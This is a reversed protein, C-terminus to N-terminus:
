FRFLQHWPLPVLLYVISAVALFTGFPLATRGDGRGAIMLGVGVLAGLIAAVILVWLCGMVGLVAGIAALYKVDGFGMGEIGRVAKYLVIVAIPIGGGVVIGLGAELPTTLGGALSGAIGLVVAPYTIVDPLIQHELDILGLAISMWVFVVAEGMAVSLGYRSVILATLIATVLEVVPYRVSIPAGCDRCRGRLILWSFVPINDYWRILHGCNPCHSRPKVVSEGRPVRYIVVNLFSGVVAGVCVAYILMLPQLWVDM